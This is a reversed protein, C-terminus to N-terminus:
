APGREVNGDNTKWTSTIWLSMETCSGRRELTWRNSGNDRNAVDRAVGCSAIRGSVVVRSGSINLVLLGGHGSSGRWVGTFDRRTEKISSNNPGKGTFVLVARGPIDEREVDDPDGTDYEGSVRNMGRTNRGHGKRWIKSKRTDSNGRM